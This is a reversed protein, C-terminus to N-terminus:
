FPRCFPRLPRRVTRACWVRVTEDESGSVVQFGDPTYGIAQASAGHGRMV